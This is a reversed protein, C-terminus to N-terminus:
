LFERVAAATIVETLVMTTGLAMIVRTNSNGDASLKIIIFFNFVFLFSTCVQLQINYLIFYMLFLLIHYNLKTPLIILM